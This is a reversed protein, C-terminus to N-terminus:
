YAYWRLVYKPVSGVLVREASQLVQIVKTSYMTLSCFMFKVTFDKSSMACRRFRVELNSHGAQNAVDPRCLSPNRLCCRTSRHDESFLNAWPDLLFSCQLQRDTTAGHYRAQPIWARLSVLNLYVRESGVASSSQVTDLKESFGM